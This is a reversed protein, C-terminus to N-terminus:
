GQSLMEDMDTQRYQKKSQETKEVQAKYRQLGYETLTYYEGRTGNLPVILPKVPKGKRDKVERMECVRRSVHSKHLKNIIEEQTMEHQFDIAFDDYTDQILAEGGRRGLYNYIWTKSVENSVSFKKKPKPQKTTVVEATETPTEVEDTITPTDVNEEVIEAEIVAVNNSSPVFMGDIYANVDIGIKAIIHLLQYNNGEISYKAVDGLTENVSDKLSLYISDLDINEMHKEMQKTFRKVQM